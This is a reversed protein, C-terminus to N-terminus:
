EDAHQKAWEEPTMPEAGVVLRHNHDAAMDVSSLDPLAKKLLCDAARVQTSTMKVKGLVHDSLRNILQSTQIKKRAEETNRLRKRAAM